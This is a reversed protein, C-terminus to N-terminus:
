DFQDKMGPLTIPCISWTATMPPLPANTGLSWGIAHGFAHLLVRPLGSTAKRPRSSRKQGSRVEAGLPRIHVLLFPHGRCHDERRSRTKSVPRASGVQDLRHRDSRGSQAETGSLDNIALSGSSGRNSPGLRGNAFLQVIECRLQDYSRGM